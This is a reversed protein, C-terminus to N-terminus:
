PDPEMSVSSNRIRMFDYLSISEKNDILIKTSFIDTAQLSEDIYVDVPRKNFGDDDKELGLHPINFNYREIYNEIAEEIKNISSINRRSKNKRSNESAIGLQGSEPGNTWNVFHIKKYINQYIYCLHIETFYIYLFSKKRKKKKYKKWFIWNNWFDDM